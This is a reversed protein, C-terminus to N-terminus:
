TDATALPTYGGSMDCREPESALEAITRLISRVHPTVDISEIAAASMRSSRHSTASRSPSTNALYGAVKRREALNTDSDGVPQV